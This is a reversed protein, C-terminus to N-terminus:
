IIRPSCYKRSSNIFTVSFTATFRYQEQQARRYVYIYVTARHIIGEYLIVFCLKSKKKKPKKLVSATKIRIRTKIINKEVLHTVFFLLWDNTVCFFRTFFFPSLPSCYRNPFTFESSFVRDVFCFTIALSLFVEVIYLLLTGIVRTKWLFLIM